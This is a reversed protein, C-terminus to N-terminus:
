HLQLVTESHFISSEEGAAYQGVDRLQTELKSWADPDRIMLTLMIRASELYLADLDRKDDKMCVIGHM